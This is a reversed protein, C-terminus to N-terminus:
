RERQCVQGNDYHLKRQDNKEGDAQELNFPVGGVKDLDAMVYKGGPRLDAIHPVKKRIREFDDLTLKVGSERGLAILHM